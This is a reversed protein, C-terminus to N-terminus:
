ASGYAVGVLLLLIVQGESSFCHVLLKEAVGCLGMMTLQKECTWATIRVCAIRIDSGRACYVDWM